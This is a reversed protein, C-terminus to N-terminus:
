EPAQLQQRFHPTSGRPIVSDSVGSDQGCALFATSPSHPRLLLRIRPERAPRHKPLATSVRKGNRPPAQFSRLHGTTVRSQVSHGQREFSLRPSTGSTRRLPLLSLASPCYRLSLGIRLVTLAVNRDLQQVAPPWSTGGATSSQNGPPLQRSRSHSEPSDEDRPPSGVSHYRRSM